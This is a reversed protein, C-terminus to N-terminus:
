KRHSCGRAGRLTHVFNTVRKSFSFDIFFNKLKIYSVRFNLKVLMSCQGHTLCRGPEPSSVRGGDEVRHRLFPLWMFLHCFLYKVFTHKFFQSFRFRHHFSTIRDSYNTFEVSDLQAKFSPLFKMHLRPLSLREVLFFLPLFTHSCTTLSPRQPYNM